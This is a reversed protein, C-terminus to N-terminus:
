VILVRYRTNLDNCLLISHLKSVQDNKRELNNVELSIIQIWNRNV